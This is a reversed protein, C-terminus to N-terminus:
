GLLASQSPWSDPSWFGIHPLFAWDYLLSIYSFLFRNRVNVKSLIEEFAGSVPWSLGDLWLKCTSGHVMPPRVIHWELLLILLAIAIGLTHVPHWLKMWSLHIMPWPKELGSKRTRMRTSLSLHWLLLIFVRFDRIRCYLWHCRASVVNYSVGLYGCLTCLRSKASELHQFRGPVCLQVNESVLENPIGMKRRWGVHLVFGKEALLLFLLQIRTRMKPVM